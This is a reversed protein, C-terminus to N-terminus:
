KYDQIANVFRAMLEMADSGGLVLSDELIQRNHRAFATFKSLKEQDKNMSKYIASKKAIEIARDTIADRVRYLPVDTGIRVVKEEAHRAYYFTEAISLSVSVEIAEAPVTVKIHQEKVPFAKSIDNLKGVVAQDYRTLIHEIQTKTYKM